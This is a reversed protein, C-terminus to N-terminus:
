PEGGLVFSMEGVKRGVSTDVVKVTFLGDCVGM